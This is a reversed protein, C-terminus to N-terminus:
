PSAWHSFQRGITFARGALALTRAKEARTAVGRPRYVKLNEGFCYGRCRASSLDVRFSPMGGGYKRVLTVQLQPLVKLVRLVRFSSFTSIQEAQWGNKVPLSFYMSVAPRM